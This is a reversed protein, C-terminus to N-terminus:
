TLAAAAARASGGSCRRGLEGHMRSSVLALRWEQRQTLSPNLQLVNFGALSGAPRLEVGAQLRRACQRRLNKAPVESPSKRSEM